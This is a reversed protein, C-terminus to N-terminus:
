PFRPNNKSPLERTRSLSVAALAKSLVERLPTLDRLTRLMGRNISESGVRFRLKPWFFGKLANTRISRLGLAIGM